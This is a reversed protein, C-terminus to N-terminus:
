GLHDPEPRHTVERAVLPIPAPAPGPAGPGAAELRRSTSRRDGVIGRQDPVMAWQELMSRPGGNAGAHLPVVPGTPPRERPGDPRDIM